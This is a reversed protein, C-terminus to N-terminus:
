PCNEWFEDTSVLTNGTIRVEKVLFRSSTDESSSLQPSTAKDSGTSVSADKPGSEKAKASDAYFLFFSVATLVAAGIPMSM